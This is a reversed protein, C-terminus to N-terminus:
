VIEKNKLEKLRALVLSMRWGTPHRKGMIAAKLDALQSSRLELRDITRRASALDKRLREIEKDREICGQALDRATQDYQSINDVVTQLFKEIPSKRRPKEKKCVCPGHSKGIRWNPCDYEHYESVVYKTMTV